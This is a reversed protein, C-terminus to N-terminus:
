RWKTALSFGVAIFSFGIIMNWAGIGSIPFRTQSVYYVVIWILGVLFNTVMVPALWRPSEAPATEGAHVQEEHANHQQVKKRLKSKPM